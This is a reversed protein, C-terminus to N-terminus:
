DLYGEIIKRIGKKTENTDVDISVMLPENEIIQKITGNSYFVQKVIEISRDLIELTIPDQNCINTIKNALEAAIKENEISLEKM